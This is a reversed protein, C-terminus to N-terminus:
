TVELLLDFNAHIIAKRKAWDAEFLEMDSRDNNVFSQDAEIMQCYDVDTRNSTCALSALGIM